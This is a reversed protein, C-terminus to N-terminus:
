SMGQDKAGQEIIKKLKAPAARMFTHARVPDLGHYCDRRGGHQM